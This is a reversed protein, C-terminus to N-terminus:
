TTLLTTTGHEDTVIWGDERSLKYPANLRVTTTKDTMRFAGCSVRTGDPHTLWLQYFHGSTQTPLNTIRFLMPWNGASDVKGLAISARAPSTGSPPHMPVLAETPFGGSGNDAVLYGAGFAIAAVAAALVIAAALRRRPLHPYVKIEDEPAELSEFEPSLEPPPGAAVLLDHVRRLREEEEPSLDDGVLDRFDTM